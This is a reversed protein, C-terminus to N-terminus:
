HLSQFFKWVHEPAFDARINHGIGNSQCWVVPNKECGQYRVCGDSEDIINNSCGNLQIARALAAKGKMISVVNDDQDHLFWSAVKGKCSAGRLGGAVAASARLEEGRECTLLNNFFAGVSFGYSFIRERDICYRSEITELMQDFFLLDISDTNTQWRGNIGDAGVVIADNGSAFEIDLGGSMGNGGSGHWRFIIPYARHSDYNAPVLLHYTRDQNLVQIRMPMFSGTGVQSIGCGASRGGVPATNIVSVTSASSSIVSCMLTLMLMFQATFKFM